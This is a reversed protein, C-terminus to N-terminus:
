EEESPEVQDRIGDEPSLLSGMDKLTVAYAGLLRWPQVSHKMMRTLDVSQITRGDEYEKQDVVVLDYASADIMYPLRNGNSTTFCGFLRGELRGSAPIDGLGKFVRPLSEAKM